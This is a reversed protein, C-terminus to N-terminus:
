RRRRLRPDSRDDVHLYVTPTVQGTTSQLSHLYIREGASVPIRIGTVSKNIGSIAFGAAEAGAVQECVISISGRSDNSAFTNSSLFSVECCYEEGNADLDARVAWDIAVIEGDFMIDLSAGADASAAFNNYLKYVSM